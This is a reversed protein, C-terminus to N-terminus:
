NQNRVRENEKDKIYEKVDRLIFQHFSENEDYEDYLFYDDVWIGTLENNIIIEIDSYGAENCTSEIEYNPYLERLKDIVLM